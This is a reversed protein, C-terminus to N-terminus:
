TGGTGACEIVLLNFVHVNSRSCKGYAQDLQHSLSSAKISWYLFSHEPGEQLEVPLDEGRSSRELEVASKM